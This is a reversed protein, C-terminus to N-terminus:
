ELGKFLHKEEFDIKYIKLMKQYEELFSIKKHHAEQNKIYDYVRHIQGASYSFSGFGNQWEFKSQLYGTENLWKSSKAKVSQMVKSLSHKPKISILCHIHDEVGNVIFSKCDTENILNGIVSFFDNKWPNEIKAKKYKVAFVVQIYLSAYSNAM